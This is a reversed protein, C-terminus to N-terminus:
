GCRKAPKPLQRLNKAILRISMSHSHAAVTSMPLPVSRGLSTAPFMDM